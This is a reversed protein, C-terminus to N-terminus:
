TLRWFFSLVSASAIQSATVLGLMRNQRDLRDLLLAAQHKMRTFWRFRCM